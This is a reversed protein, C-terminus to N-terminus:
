SSLRLHKRRRIELTARLALRTAIGPDEVGLAKRLPPDLLADTFRPGFARLSSPLRTSLLSRTAMYLEAGEPSTSFNRSEYDKMWSALAEYSEPVNKMNMRHALDAYFSYSSGKENDSPGRVGNRKMWEMPTVCFASLVYTFHHDQASMGSHLRNLTRIIDSGSPGDLGDRILTFMMAGTAKARARPFQTMKGTSALTKAIQPIAFTRFLGLNLGLRVDSPFLNVALHRFHFYSCDRAEGAGNGSTM